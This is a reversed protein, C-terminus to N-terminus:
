WSDEALKTYGWFVRSLKLGGGLISPYKGVGLIGPISFELGLFM